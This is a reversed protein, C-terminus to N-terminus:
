PLHRKPKFLFCPFVLWKPPGKVQFFLTSPPGAVPSPPSSSSCNEEPDQYHKPTASVLESGGWALFNDMHTRTLIPTGTFHNAEEGKVWDGLPTGEVLVGGNRPPADM